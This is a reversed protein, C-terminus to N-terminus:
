DSADDQGGDLGLYKDTLARLEKLTDALEQRDAALTGRQDDIEARLEDLLAQDEETMEDRLNDVVADRREAQAEVRDQLADRRQALPAQVGPRLRDLDGAANQLRQSLRQDSIAGSGDDSDGGCAVAGLSVVIVSVSVAVLWMNSRLRKM